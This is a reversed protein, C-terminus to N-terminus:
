GRKAGRKTTAEGRMEFQALSKRRDSSSTGLPLILIEDGPAYGAEKLTAYMPWLRPGGTIDSREVRARVARPRPRPPNSRAPM